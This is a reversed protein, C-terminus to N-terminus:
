PNVTLTATNSTIGGQKAKINTKGTAVGTALGGASITAVSTKSSTWAVSSTINQTSNDSYNGTATFQVTQGVTISPNAPMIAISVLAPNVTLTSGGSINGLAATITSTGPAVSTALGGSTITAVSTNSSSWTVSTTVTKTSGDSYTGTAAFQQTGGATIAPNVPTVSISVLAPITVTLGTSGSITGLAAKIITSGQAVGTALGGAAITAVSTKSSSWTVTRTIDQTSHDNYTGTATYQLTTGKALSANAPNISIAQLVKNVTQTLVASTSSAFSPFNAYAATVSHSGAALSSTTLTAQGSGNLTGTGLTTTGDNFAVTGTPTGSQATVTATFTVSQGYTSPNASSSLSTSTAPPKCVGYSSAAYLTAVEGPSLTRNFIEVEDIAGIYPTFPGVSSPPRIGFYLDFSTQPEFVGLNQQAVVVGNVYLEGVGTTKDYTLAVHQYVSASLVSGPSVFYHDAANTDVINAFLTGPAFIGIWLHVGPYVGTASNWEVVPRAVSVDSPNIWADVTFGGSAAGVNLTPSAPIRVNAGSGDLSFAQGVEGPGFSVGNVLTGNNLGAIDNPSGEGPWWSVLGSPPQVCSNVLEHAGIDCGSGQPRPIGRQDTTVTNGAVDTCSGADVAASTSLLAITQTPGGNNRLGNPDLGADASSMDSPGFPCSNDDSLNYRASSLGGDGYCNGGSLSSVLLTNKLTTESGSNYVAGGSAASNGSFTNSTLTAIGGSFNSVGGGNHVASNQSFTSNTITTSGGYYNLIAGGFYIASNGSFTSAQITLEGAYNYIAGGSDNASSNGSFTSNTVTVTGYSLIAGGGHNYVTNNSFTSNTITLTASFNNYVGGGDYSSTSNSVSADSLALSGNNLIAGGTGSGGSIGNKISISSINATVGSDIQFVQSANNGSVTLNGAGPGNIAVANSIELLGQALTVTAPYALNFTITDCASPNGTNAQAIAYRLTGSVPTASSDDTSTVTTCNTTAMSPVACIALVIAVALLRYSWRGSQSASQIVLTSPCQPVCPM